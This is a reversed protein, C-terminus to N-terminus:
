PIGHHLMPEASDPRQPGDHTQDNGQQNIYRRRTLMASEDAPTRSIHYRLCHRSRQWTGRERSVRSQRREATESDPEVGADSHGAGVQSEPQIGKESKNGAGAIESAGNKSSPDEDLGHTQPRVAGRQEADRPVDREIGPKPGNRQQSINEIECPFGIKPVDRNQFCM